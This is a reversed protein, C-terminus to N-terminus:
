CIITKRSNSSLRVSLFEALPEPHKARIRAWWNRFENPDAEGEEVDDRESKGLPEGDIKFKPPSHETSAPSQTEHEGPIYDFVPQGANNYRGNHATGAATHRTESHGNSRPSFVSRPPEESKAQELEGREALEELPPEKVNRAKKPGRVLRPLPRGLSFVPKTRVKDHWPNRELYEEDIWGLREASPTEPNTLQSLGDLDSRGATYTGRVSSGFNQGRHLNGTPRVDFYQGSSVAETTDSSPQQAADRNSSMPTPM